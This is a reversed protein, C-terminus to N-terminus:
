PMSFPSYSSALDEFRESSVAVTQFGFLAQLGPLIVRAEEIINRMDPDVKDFELLAREM